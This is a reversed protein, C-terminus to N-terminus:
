LVIEKLDAHFNPIVCKHVIIGDGEVAKCAANVAARVAEVKGTLTFYSKGGIGMALRVDILKVDARKGAADAATVCTAVTITEVSGLANIEKVDTIGRVARIVDRHVNPILLTDVLFEGALDIGIDMSSHIDSLSGTVLIIFKGPCVPHAEVLTIGSMKVMSDSVEFGCSISSLEIMGISAQM